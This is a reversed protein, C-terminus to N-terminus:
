PTKCDTESTHLADSCSHGLAIIERKRQMIVQRDTLPKM